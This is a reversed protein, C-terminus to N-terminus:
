CKCLKRAASVAHFYVSLTQLYRRLDMLELSCTFVCKTNTFVKLPGDTRFQMFDEFRKPIM